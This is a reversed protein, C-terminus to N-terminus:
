EVARPGIWGMVINKSPVGLADSLWQRIKDPESEFSLTVTGDKSAFPVLNRISVELGCGLMKRVGISYRPLSEAYRYIMKGESVSNIQLTENDVGFIVLSAGKSKERFETWKECQVVPIGRGVDLRGVEEVTKGAAEKVSIADVVDKLKKSIEDLHKEHERLVSIVLDLASLKESEKKSM